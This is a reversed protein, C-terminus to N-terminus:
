RLVVIVMFRDVDMDFVRQLSVEYGDVIFTPINSEGMFSSEGRIFFDPLTNPDSGMLNNERIKFSPDVMSLAQILNANGFKRLEERNTQTVAGTFSNKSKNFYGTVVVDDIETAEEEMTVAIETRGNIAIERTKMGIFSFVLTGKLDDPVALEYNGNVDTATGLSTGKLLITVGPLPEGNPTTVKGKVMVVGSQAQVLQEPSIVIHDGVIEYQKTSFRPM